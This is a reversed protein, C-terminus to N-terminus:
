KIEWSDKPSIMTKVAESQLWDKAKKGEAGNTLHAKYFSTSIIQISRHHAPHPHKKGFLLRDSFAMHKAGNLVLQYKDGEPLNEFVLQRSEPTVQPTIIARDETGTMLLWPIAVKSFAKKAGTTDPKGFKKPISPSMMFAAKIRTDTFQDGMLANRQGSVAQTTVAGFSHGCMGVQNMNLKDFLPHSRDRNWKAAQDITASVDQIRKLYSDTNIAKKLAEMQEGRKSNKIVDRDSGEHQMAIVVFGQEAWTTGLYMCAERTGGLGHSMIILPYREAAAEKPYYIKLPLVRPANKYEYSFETLLIDAKKNEGNAQAYSTNLLFCSFILLTFFFYHKM